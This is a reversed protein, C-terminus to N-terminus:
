QAFFGGGKRPSASAYAGPPDFGGRNNGEIDFPLGNWSGLPNVVAPSSSLLRYNGNGSGVSVGDYAGTSTYKWYGTTQLPTETVSNTITGNLGGFENMFTGSSSFNTIASMGNGDFGVGYLVPWNGLRVSSATDFGAYTDSKINYSSCTISKKVSWFFRNHNSTGSADYACNWREGEGTLYWILVNNCTSVIDGAGNAGIQFLPQISSSSTKEIVNQVCAIGGFNNSIVGAGVVIVSTNLGIVKNFAIIANTSAFVGTPMAGSQPETTFVTSPWGAAVGRYDVVNGIATYSLIGIGSQSLASNTVYNGRVLIPVKTQGAIYSIGGAANTFLNDTWYEYETGDFTTGQQHNLAMGDIWLYPVSLFELASNNTLTMGYIHIKSNGLARDNLNNGIIVSDRTVGPYPRITLWAPSTAAGYTSAAGAFTYAGAKMYIVGGGCDNHTPSGAVNNSAAIQNAAKGITLFYQASNISTPDSNTSVRGNTDSGAPDVVAIATSYTGLRDCVNTIPAYFPTPQSNVGDMTDIVALSDGQWPYAAFDCRIFDSQTFGSIDINAVYECVPVADGLTSDISMATVFNTQAHSHQDRAVFRMVRIPRGNQGSRQFAVARLTMTNATVKQWGPYSWNAICKMQGYGVTSLNTVIVSSGATNNSYFSAGWSIASVVDNSAVYDSLSIIGVVDSGSISTDANTNNPYAMRVGKTGYIVHSTWNSAGADDFGPSNVTLTIKSSGSNNTGFGFNWLAWNTTATSYGAISFKLMWGNTEVTFWNVDGTAGFVRLAVFLFIFALFRM